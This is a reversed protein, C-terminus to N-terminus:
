SGDGFIQNLVALRVPLGNHAQEFYRAHDTRDVEPDIGGVRPLPHMVKLGSPAERLMDLTVTEPRAGTGEIREEQVRTQYLIDAQPLTNEITEAREITAGRKEIEAELDSPIDLDGVPVLRIEAGYMGLALGLSHVTRGYRLDGAMVVTADELSGCAQRITLLDTLTQTPHEGAGDGANVVPVEAFRAALRASGQRPHRLVIADAYGSVVRVTDALSEGKAMSSASAESITITDGGIRQMASEFSLRTRTSPEYFLAALVRGEAIPEPGDGDLAKQAREAEDLIADVRERDLDRVSVLNRPGPQRASGRGDPSM